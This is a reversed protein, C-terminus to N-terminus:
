LSIPRWLDHGVLGLNHRQVGTLSSPAASSEDGRRRARSAEPIGISGTRWNIKYTIGVRIMKTLGNNGGAPLQIARDPNYRHSPAAQKSAGPGVLAISNLSFTLM